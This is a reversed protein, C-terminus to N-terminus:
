GQGAKPHKTNRRAFAIVKPTIPEKLTATKIARLLFDNLTENRCVAAIKAATHIEEDLNRIFVNM